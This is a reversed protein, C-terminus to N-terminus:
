LEGSGAFRWPVTWALMAIIVVTMDGYRGPVFQQIWECLGVFAALILAGAIAYETRRYNPALVVVFAALTFFVWSLSLVNM